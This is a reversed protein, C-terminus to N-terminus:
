VRASRVATPCSTSTLYMALMVIYFLFPQCCKSDAMGREYLAEITRKLEADSCKQCKSLYRYRQQYVSIRHYKEFLEFVQRGTLAKHVKYSEMCFVAFNIEHSM